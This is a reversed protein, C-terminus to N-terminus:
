ADGSFLLGRTQPEKVEGLSRSLRLVEENPIQRIVDGTAEDIVRVIVQGSEEDVSFNLERTLNQVYGSVHEVANRLAKRREEALLAEEIAPLPKGGGAPNQRQDGTNGVAKGTTGIQAVANAAHLRSLSTMRM